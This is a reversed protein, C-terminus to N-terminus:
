VLGAWSAAFWLAGGGSVSGWATSSISPDAKGRRRTAISAPCLCWNAVAMMRSRAMCIIGSALPVWCRLWRWFSMKVFIFLSGAWMAVVKVCSMCIIFVSMAASTTLFTILFCTFFYIFLCSLWCFPSLFDLLVPVWACLLLWVVCRQLFSFFGGKGM